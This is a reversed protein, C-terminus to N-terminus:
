MTRGLSSIPVKPMMNLWLPLECNGNLMQQISAKFDHSWARGTPDCIFCNLILYTVTYSASVLDSFPYRPTSYQQNNVHLLHFYGHVNDVTSNCAYRLLTM